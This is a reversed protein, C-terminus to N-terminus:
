PLGFYTYVPLSYSYGGIYKKRDCTRLPRGTAPDFLHRRAYVDGATIHLSTDVLIRDRMVWRGRSFITGRGSEAARAHADYLGFKKIDLGESRGAVILAVEPREERLEGVVWEAMRSEAVMVIGVRRDSLTGEVYLYRRGEEVHDPFFRDGHYLLAFDRGDFTNLTRHIYTYDGLCAASLDRVVAENEVGWLAVFPLAMSDIVAAINETKRRYRETDWRYLGAPTYDGDNYFLSPITDYLRDVDYYAIAFEGGAHRTQAATMGFLM